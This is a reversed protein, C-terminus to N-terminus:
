RDACGACCIHCRMEEAPERRDYIGAARPAARVDSRVLARIPGLDSVGKDDTPVDPAVYIVDCKKLLNADTTFALRARRRGFMLDSWRASRVLIASARTMPRCMRRLMYSM